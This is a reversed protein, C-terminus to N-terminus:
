GPLTRATRSIGIVNMGLARCRPALDEAILGVGLIGVTKGFLLQPFFREWHRREQQALTRRFDRALALMMMLAAESMPVGHIGRTATVLVDKALHPSDVIGDVGTGLAHVWKLRPAVRFFDRSLNAGFGMFIDAKPIAAVADELELAVEVTLEPDKELLAKRYYPGQPPITVFVAVNARM